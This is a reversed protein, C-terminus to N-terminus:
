SCTEVLAAARDGRALAAALRQACDKVRDPFGPGERIMTAKLRDLHERCGFQQCVQRTVLSDPGCPYGADCALSVWAAHTLMYAGNSDSTHPFNVVAYLVEPTADVLATAALEIAHQRLTAPDRAGAPVFAGPVKFSQPRDIYPEGVVIIREIDERRLRALRGVRVAAEMLAAPHGAVFARRLWESAAGIEQEFVPGIGFCARFWQKDLSVQEPDGGRRDLNALARELAELDAFQPPSIYHECAEFAFYIEFQCDRDGARACAVRADVLPRLAAGSHWALTMASVSGNPVASASAAAVPAAQMPEPVSAVNDGVPEGTAAVRAVVAPAPARAIWLVAIAGIAIVAFALPIRPNM